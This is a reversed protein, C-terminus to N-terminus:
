ASKLSSIAASFSAARGLFDPSKYHISILNAISSFQHELCQNEDEPDSSFTAQSHLLEHYFREEPPDRYNATYGFAIRNRLKHFEYAKLKAEKELSSFKTLAEQFATANFMPEAKLLERHSM